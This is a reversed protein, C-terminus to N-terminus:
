RFGSGQVFGIAPWLSLVEQAEKKQPPSLHANSLRLSDTILAHSDSSGEGTPIDVHTDVDGRGKLMHSM